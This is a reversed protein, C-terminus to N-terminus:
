QAGREIYRTSAVGSAIVVNAQSGVAQVQSPEAPDIPLHIHEPSVSQLGLATAAAVATLPKSIYSM